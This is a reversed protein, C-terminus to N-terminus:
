RKEQASEADFKMKRLKETPYTIVDTDILRAHTQCLWICNEISKREEPTMSKDYRPGGPSAACIHSAVGINSVKDPGELSAATTIRNCFSCCFGVRKAARIITDKDFDDRNDNKAM